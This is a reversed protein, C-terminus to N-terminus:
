RFCRTDHSVSWWHVFRTSIFTFVLEISHRWSKIPNIYWLVLLVYNIGSFINRTLSLQSFCRMHKTHWARLTTKYFTDRQFVSSCKFFLDQDYNIEGLVQGWRHCGHRDHQSWVSSQTRQRHVRERHSSIPLATQRKLVDCSHLSFLTM